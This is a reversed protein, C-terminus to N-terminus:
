SIFFFILPCQWQMNFKDIHKIMLQNNSLSLYTFDNSVNLNLNVCLFLVNDECIVFSKKKKFYLM